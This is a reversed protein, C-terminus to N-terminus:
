QSLVASMVAGRVEEDSLLAGAVTSPLIKHEVLTAWFEPDRKVTDWDREHLEQPIGRANDGFLEAVTAM